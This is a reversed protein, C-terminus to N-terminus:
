DASSKMEEKLFFETNKIALEIGDFEKLSKIHAALHSLHCSVDVLQNGSLSSNVKLWDGDPGYMLGDETWSISVSNRIQYTGCIRKSRVSSIRRFYSEVKNFLADIEKDKDEVNEKDVKWQPKGMM